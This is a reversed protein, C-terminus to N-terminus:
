LRCSKAKRVLIGNDIPLLPAVAMVVTQAVQKLYWTPLTGQLGICGDHCIVQLQRFQTYGSADLARRVERTVQYDSDCKDPEIELVDNWTSMM